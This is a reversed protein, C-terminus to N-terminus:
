REGTELHMADFGSAHAETYYSLARERDTAIGPIGQLYITGLNNLALPHGQSAAEQYWFVAKSGDQPIYLGMQYLLALMCQADSVGSHAAPVSVEYVAKYEGAPFLSLVHDSNYTECPM